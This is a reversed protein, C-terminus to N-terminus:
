KPLPRWYLPPSMEKGESHWGRRVVRVTGDAYFGLVAGDRGPPDIYTETWGPDQPKMQGYCGVAAQQQGYLNSANDQWYQNTAPDWLKDWFAM